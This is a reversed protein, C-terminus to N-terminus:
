LAKCGLVLVFALALKNAQDNDAHMYRLSPVRQRSRTPFSVKPFSTKVPVLNVCRANQVKLAVGEFDM